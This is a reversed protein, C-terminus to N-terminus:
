RLIMYCPVNQNHHIQSTRLMYFLDGLKQIFTISGMGSYIFCQLTILRYGELDFSVDSLM